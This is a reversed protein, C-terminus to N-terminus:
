RPCNLRNIKYFLLSVTAPKIKRLRHQHKSCTSQGEMLLMLYIKIARRTNMYVTVALFENM